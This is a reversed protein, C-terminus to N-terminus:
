NIVHNSGVWTGNGLQLGHSGHSMHCTVWTVHLGHLGHSGHSMYGMHGMHGMSTVGSEGTAVWPFHISVELICSKPGRKSDEKLIPNITSWVKNVPRSVGSVSSLYWMEIVKFNWQISPITKSLRVPNSTQKPHKGERQFCRGFVLNLIWFYPHPKRLYRKLWPNRGDDSKLVPLWWTLIEIVFGRKLLHLLSLWTM